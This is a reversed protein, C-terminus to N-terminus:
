LRGGRNAQDDMLGDIGGSTLDAGLLRRGPGYEL